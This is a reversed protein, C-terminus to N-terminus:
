RGSEYGRMLSHLFDGIAASSAGNSHGARFRWQRVRPGRSFQEGEAIPLFM